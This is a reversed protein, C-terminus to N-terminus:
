HVDTRIVRLYPDIGKIKLILDDLHETSNIELTIHGIFTGDIAEFSISEMNIALEKSVINTLKSVLGVSDIGSIKISAKFNIEDLRDYGAWQAKIIRYGYNSMLKIANKCNTRHVKVGEGVTIFGMVEDGPIPSCCKAFQYDLELDSNDGIILDGTKKPQLHEPAKENRVRGIEARDKYGQILQKLPLDTKPFGELAVKVYFDAESPVQFHMCIIRMNEQTKPVKAQRLKRIVVEKGDAVKKRKEEKLSHKIRAKAKATVVYELWGKTPKQKSSTIVEVQDGNHLEHSLPVLKGNVKAGICKSGVETHIEFAFDLATAKVPLKRLDGKPTFVFVEESFLNLKFDDLFDIANEQPNELVERVRNLWNDLGDSNQHGDEKYRWHAAYGKEAIEDM